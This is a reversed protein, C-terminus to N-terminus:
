EGKTGTGLAKPKKRGPFWGSNRDVEKTPSFELVECQLLDRRKAGVTHVRSRETEGPRPRFYPVFSGQETRLLVQEFAEFQVKQLADRQLVDRQLADGPRNGHVRDQQLRDGTGDHLILIRAVAKDVVRAYQAGDAERGERLRLRADESSFWTRNRNAEKPKGLRLVLCLYAKVAHGEETSRAASKRGRKRCVYRAFSAEEIRGHVGAEEFAELAAAQAHTLGPETSGKPFTWRGSGRTRVLLFEISRKRVRYCVAAAQECKRLKRLHALRVLVNSRQNAPVRSRVFLRSGPDNSGPGNSGPDNRADASMAM